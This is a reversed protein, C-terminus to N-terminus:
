HIFYIRHTKNGKTTKTHKMENTKPMQKIENKTQKKTKIGLKLTKQPPPNSRHPLLM